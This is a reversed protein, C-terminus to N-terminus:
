QTGRKSTHWMNKGDAGCGRTFGQVWVVAQYLYSSEFLVSICEYHKGRSNTLIHPSYVFRRNLVTSPWHVSLCIGWCATTYMISIVYSKCISRWSSYLGNSNQRRHSFLPTKNIPKQIKIVRSHCCILHVIALVRAGEGKTFLRYRYLIGKPRSQLCLAKALWLPWGYFM